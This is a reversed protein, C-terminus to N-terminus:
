GPDPRFNGRDAPRSEPVGFNFGSGPVMGLQSREFFWKLEQPGKNLANDLEDADAYGEVVAEIEGVVRDTEDSRPRKELVWLQGILGLLKLYKKEPGLSSADTIQRFEALAMETDPVAGSMLAIGLRLRSLDALPSESFNSIVARWAAARTPQLMALAFQAEATAQKEITAPLQPEPVRVPSEIRRGAVFSIVFMALFGLSIRRAQPLWPKWQGFLSNSGGLKANIPVSDLRKLEVELQSPEQFRDEPKKQLMRHVVACLEKPLDGRFTNLPLPEEKLHQVAVAVSNKGPFPPRGAFMHYCTVGFSYQDSRHDLKDGQIQEPSMYWPTGMTTGIQTLNMKPSSPQNLQALGFDTVKAIGNRTVMVNEPKVDRHVIGAEAAAHLAAAIQQMWKLGTGYDPPGHKRIWQSLNLGPVYEQVIYNIGGERGTTIIQVLNTHNLAGAARAELEFRKLLLGSDGGLMDNKLVKVAVNRQLSTQEALYVDAMGGSGLRRLLLFEGIRVNSLDDAPQDPNGTSTSSAMFQLHGVFQCGSSATNLEM